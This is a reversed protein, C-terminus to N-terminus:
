PHMADLSFSKVKLVAYICIPSRHNLLPAQQPWFRNRGRAPRATEANGRGHAPEVIQGHGPQAANPEALLDEQGQQAHGYRFGDARLSFADLVDLDGISHLGQSAPQGVPGVVPALVRTQTTMGLQLALIIEAEAACRLPIKVDGLRHAHGRDLGQGSEPEHLRVTRTKVTKATRFGPLSQYFLRRPREPGVVPCYQGMQHAPHMPIVPAICPGETCLGETVCKGRQCRKRLVGSTDQPLLEDDATSISRFVFHTTM